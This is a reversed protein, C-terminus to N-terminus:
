QEAKVKGTQAEDAATQLAELVKKRRAHVMLSIVVLAGLGLLSLGYAGWVFLGYKGMDLDM